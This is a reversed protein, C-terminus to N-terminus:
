LQQRSSLDILSLFLFFASQFRKWPMWSTPSARWAPSQLLEDKQLSFVITAFPLLSLFHNSGEKLLGLPPLSLAWQFLATHPLPPHPPPPTSLQPDPSHRLGTQVRCCPEPWTALTPPMDEATPPSQLYSEQGGPSSPQLWPPVTLKHRQLLSM